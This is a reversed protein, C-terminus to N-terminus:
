FIIKRWYINGICVFNLRVHVKIEVDDELSQSTTQFRGLLARGDTDSSHIFIVKMYNFHKLLEVWVDAQHSYPPVTRLFSVHINQKSFLIWRSIDNNIFHRNYNVSLFILNTINLMKINLALNATSIILNANQLTVMVCKIVIIINLQVSDGDLNRKNIKWKRPLQLFREFQLFCKFKTLSFGVFKKRQCWQFIDPSM